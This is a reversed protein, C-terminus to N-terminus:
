HIMEDKELKAYCMPPTATPDDVSHRGCTFGVDQLAFIVIIENEPDYERIAKEAEANVAADGFDYGSVTYEPLKEPGESTGEFLIAGRGNRMYGGWGFTALVPWMGLVFDFQGQLTTMDIESPSVHRGQKGKRKRTM